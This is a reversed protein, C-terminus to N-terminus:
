QPLPTTSFGETPNKVQFSKSINELFLQRDKKAAYLAGEWRM